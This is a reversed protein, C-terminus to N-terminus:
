GGRIATIFHIESTALVAEALGIPSIDGDVAVAINPRLRDQEVLRDRLGPFRVDLNQIIQAVTAGEVEIEAAGGTLATLLPPIYVRPM